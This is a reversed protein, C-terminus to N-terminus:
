KAFDVKVPNKAAVEELEFLDRKKFGFMKVFMNAPFSQVAINM